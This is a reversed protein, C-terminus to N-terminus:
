HRQAPLTGCHPDPWVQPEQAVRPQDGGGAAGGVSPLAVVVQVQVLARLRQGIATGRKVRRQATVERWGRRRESPVRGPGDGHQEQSGCMCGFVTRTSCSEYPM